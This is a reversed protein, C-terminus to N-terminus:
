HDEHLSLNIVSRKMVRLHSSVNTTDCDPGDTATPSEQCLSTTCIWVPPLGQDRSLPCTGLRPGQRLSSCRDFAVDWRYAALSILLTSYTMHEDQGEGSHCRTCRTHLLACKPSPCPVLRRYGAQAPLSRSDRRFLTSDDPGGSLHGVLHAPPKEM